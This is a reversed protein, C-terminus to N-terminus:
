HQRGYADAQAGGYGAYDGAPAAYYSGGYGGDAAYGAGYGGYAAAPAAYGPDVVGRADPRGGGRGDASTWTKTRDCVTVGCANLTRRIEDALMFDKAMRAQERATLQDHIDTDSLYAAVAAGGYGGAAAAYAPPSLFDPGELRGSRGDRHRWVKARDDTTVGIAALLDRVRDSTAFDRQLRAEYRQKLLELMQADDGSSAAAYATGRPPSRSRSRRPETGSAGYASPVAAQAGYGGYAAAGGYGSTSFGGTLGPMTGSRGDAARWTKVRDDTSVGHRNLESRLEDARSYDRSMRAVERQALLDAIQTDSIYSASPAVLAASGASPTGPPAFFDPGELSGSRGDATTWTRSTDDPYIGLARMQDRLSDSTAFDRAKRAAARRALLDLLVETSLAGSVSGAPPQYAAPADGWRRAGESAAVAAASGGQQQQDGYAHQYQLDAEIRAAAAAAAAAAASHPSSSGAGAYYGSTDAM